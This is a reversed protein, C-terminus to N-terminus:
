YFSNLTSSTQASKVNQVNRETAIKNFPYVHIKFLYDPHRQLSM